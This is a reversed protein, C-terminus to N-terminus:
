AKLRAIEADVLLVVDTLEKASRTTVFVEFEGSLLSTPHAANVQLALQQDYTLSGLLRGQLVSALIDLRPRTPIIPPWQRGSWNLELVASRIPLRSAVRNPSRLLYRPSPLSTPPVPAFGALTDEVWRKVLDSEFTVPSAFSPMTRYMSAGLFARVDTLRIASLDTMSGITRHRYPHGPPYIAAM